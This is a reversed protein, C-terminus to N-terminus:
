HKNQIHPANNSTPFPIVNDPLLPQEDMIPEQALSDIMANADIGLLIILRVALLFSPLETCSEVKQIRRFSTHALDALERQTLGLATRSSAIHAAFIHKLQSKSLM